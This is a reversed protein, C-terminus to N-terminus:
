AEAQDEMGFQDTFACHMIWNCFDTDVKENWRVVTFKMNKNLKKYSEVAGGISKPVHYLDIFVEIFLVQNGAVFSTVSYSSVQKDWQSSIMALPFSQDSAQNFELTMM